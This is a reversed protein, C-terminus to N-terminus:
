CVKEKLFRTFLNLIFGSRAIEINYIPHFSTDKLSKEVLNSQLVVAEKEMDMNYHVFTKYRNVLAYDIEDSYILQFGKANINRLKM